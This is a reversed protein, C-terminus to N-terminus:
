NAPDDDEGEGTDLLASESPVRYSEGLWNGLDIARCRDGCFPFAPNEGRPAAPGRCIPCRPLARRESPNKM